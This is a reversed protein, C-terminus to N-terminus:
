SKYDKSQNEVRWPEGREGDDLGGNITRECQEPEEIYIGNAEADWVLLDFATERDLGNHSMRGLALSANRLKDNRGGDTAKIVNSLQREIDSKLNAPIQGNYGDIKEKVEPLILPPRGAKKPRTKTSKTPKDKVANTYFNSFDEFSYVRDPNAELTYVPKPESVDKWHVSGPIRLYRASDKVKIDGETKLAIAEIINYRQDKTVGCEHLFWWCHQGGGSQVRWSPLPLDLNTFEDDAPASKGDDYDAVIALPDITEKATRKGSKNTTLMTIFVGEQHSNATTLIREVEVIDISDIPLSIAKVQHPKGDSNRDDIQALISLYDNKRHKVIATLFATTDQADPQSLIEKVPTLAWDTPIATNLTNILDNPQSLPTKDDSLEVTGSNYTM